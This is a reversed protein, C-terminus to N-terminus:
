GDHSTGREGERGAGEGHQDHDGGHDGGVYEEEGGKFDRATVTVDQETGDNFKLALTIVQGTTIPETLDMLMFHDKGPELHLEGGAPIVFGGEKEQMMMGSGGPVTEHMEVRDSIPSTVGTIHVEVDGTNRITGFAGSMDTDTAKAWGNQFVVVAAESEGGDNPQSTAAPANTGTGNGSADTSGSDETCAALGLTLAIAATAGLLTRTTRPALTSRDARATGAARTIRTNRM